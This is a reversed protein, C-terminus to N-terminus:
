TDPNMDTDGPQEEMEQDHRKDLEDRLEFLTRGSKTRWFRWGDQASGTLAKGAGSPTGWTTGNSLIIHGDATVQAFRREELDRGMAELEDGPRLSGAEILDRLQTNHGDLRVYRSTSQRGSEVGVAKPLDVKRDIEVFWTGSTEEYVAMPVLDVPLGNEILFDLAARTRRDIDRAVLVLRPNRNVVVPTSTATFAPWDGWFEEAGKYYYGALEDLSASRAWGAYELAQALQGRDIDRKVEVIVVRGARDLAIIDPRLGNPLVPQRKVAFLPEGLVEDPNSWLLVEMEAEFGDRNRQQMPFLQEGEVRYM